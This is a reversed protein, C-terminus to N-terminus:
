LFNFNKIVRLPLQFFKGTKLHIKDVVEAHECNSANPNQIVSSGLSRESRFNKQTTLPSVVHCCISEPSKRREEPLEALGNTLCASCSDKKPCLSRLNESTGLKDFLCSSDNRANAGNFQGEPKSGSTSSHVTGKAKAAIVAEYYPYLTMKERGSERHRRSGGIRKSTKKKHSKKTKNSLKRSCDSCYCVRSAISGM